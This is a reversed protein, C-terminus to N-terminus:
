MSSKKLEAVSFLLRYNEIGSVRSLKLAINRCDEATQGHVVTFLNYPWRPPHAPRQYCHSVETFSAMLRGVEEVREEPVEWVVMANAVYGLDQHRVAAGFRRIIGRHIFDKVRALLEEEDMGLKEALARYPRSVLPLGEQLARIIAKDQESLM